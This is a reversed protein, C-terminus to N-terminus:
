QVDRKGGLPKEMSTNALWEGGRSVSNRQMPVYGRKRFFDHATDSAEVKLKTAGRAGALKELADILMSAAGQGTAAPHVYLMDIGDNGKLSAFGVPSGDLTAILTLQEGLLKGFAAEDDVATLWAEIQADSYDEAALEEVSARFIETLLPADAALFPRMALTPNASAM